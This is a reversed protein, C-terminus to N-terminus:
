IMQLPGNQQKQVNCAVVPLQAHLSSHRPSVRVASLFVSHKKGSLQNHNLRWGLSKIYIYKPRFCSFFQKNGTTLIDAVAAKGLSKNIEGRHNNCPDNEPM